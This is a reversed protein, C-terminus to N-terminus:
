RTNPDSSSLEIFILFEAEECDKAKFENLRMNELRNSPLLCHARVVDEPPRDKPTGRFRSGDHLPPDPERFQRELASRLSAPPGPLARGEGARRFRAHSEGGPKLVHRAARLTKAKQDSPIHHFMLCSLLRDFSADPYPLEDGFGQDLQILIAARAAKRRARALAKPDPDLGVVDAEPCLRKLEILLSGTGCGVELVRHGPQIKARDVLARRAKDAGMLKTMLDYFPLFIDRGAAPLYTRQSQVAMSSEKM